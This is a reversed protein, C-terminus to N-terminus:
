ATNKGHCHKFKIPNGDPKTAGCPCADNRGVNKFEPPTADAPTPAPSTSSATSTATSTRPLATAVPTRAMQITQHRPQPAAMPAVKLITSTVQRAISFELEEFMQVGERRYEVLPDQQGYARLRVSERLHGMADLHATWFMDTSSLMIMRAATTILEPGLTAARNELTAKFSGNLKEIIQLRARDQTLGPKAIVEKLENESFKADPPLIGHWFQVIEKLDWEEPREAQAANTALSDIADTAYMFVHDKLVASDKTMLIERRESYIAERQKNLVEDYELVYKRTDFNFGEIKEQAKELAKSILGHTIPEDEPLGLRAMLGQARESGFVRMLDDQMSVLFQSEGPDGQRGARGRLQNDIRRAEHRETGMVFLGGLNKIEAMADKDPPNGGLIIDVGRGAMNTAVTVAGKRGAQAIIAGEREHNKANLVEHPIHAKDLAKSIVENKEISVTGILVPQGRHHREGVEKVIARVKGAETRYIRDPHDRRIMDRHTPIIVVELGYVKFLEESSTEATGTMGSLKPYKRFLNQFTITALTKSEEQVPVGEKAELAQHIGESFRRDPMLRGTFEDVIVVKQERVVYQHDLKYLVHAKLAQELHFIREVDGAAYLNGTGLLEEIKAMGADTLVVSRLKEDVTYHEDRNLRPVQRAFTRYMESSATDPSSIILPTRAEDILISDVEDVIAYSFPRQALQEPAYALNDRLYDFGITNNTAYVIDLLYAARREIPRLFKHQVRFAQTSDKVEVAMAQATPDFTPDYVYAADQTICGISVGLAHYIQGMWAADRRTLYDNVTVVHVGKGTLANLYAPLTAVLTKGEGTRMEAIRGTHLALGGLLQVDFHRQGLTRKAAERVLAFAEVLVTDLSAGKFVRDRLAASQTKLDEATLNILSAEKENIAKTLLWYQKYFRDSPTGLIRDLIGM